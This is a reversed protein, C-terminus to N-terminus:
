DKVDDPHDKGTWRYGRGRIHEFLDQNRWLITGLNKAPDEADINLGRERLRELLDRRKLVAGTEKLIEYAARVIERPSVQSRRRRAHRVPTGFTDTEIPGTTGSAIREGMEIFAELQRVELRLTELRRRAAALIDDTM